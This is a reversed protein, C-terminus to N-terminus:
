SSSNSGEFSARPNWQSLDHQTLVTQPWAKCGMNIYGSIELYPHLNESSGWDTSKSHSVSSFTCFIRLFTINRVLPQEQELLQQWFLSQLHLFVSIKHPGPHEQLSHWFVHVLTVSDTVSCSTKILSGSLSPESASDPALLLSTSLSSFKSSTSSAM